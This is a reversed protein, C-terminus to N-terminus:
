RSEEKAHPSGGTKRAHRAPGVHTAGRSGGCGSAAKVSDGGSSAARMAALKRKAARAAAALDSLQAMLADIETPTLAGDAMAASTAAISDCAEAILATADRPSFSDGAFERRALGTLYASILPQGAARELLAAQELGIMDAHDPRACRSLHQHSLGTEHEAIKLGGLADILARLESKIALRDAEPLKRLRSM